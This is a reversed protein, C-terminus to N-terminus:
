VGEGWFSGRSLGGLNPNLREEVTLKLLVTNSFLWFESIWHDNVIIWDYFNQGHFINSQHFFDNGYNNNIQDPMQRYPNFYFSLSVLFVLDWDWIHKEIEATKM